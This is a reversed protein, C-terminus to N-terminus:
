DSWCGGRRGPTTSSPWCCSGAASTTACLVADKARAKATSGSASPSSPAPKGAAPAPHATTLPFRILRVDQKGAPVTLSIPEPEPGEQGAAPGYVSLHVPGRPLGLLRFQGTGDTSAHPSERLHADSPYGRVQLGRLAQGRPDLVVGAISQDARSVVLDPLRHDGGAPAEFADPSASTYGAPDAQVEYREGPVLGAFTFRGRADTPVTAGAGESRRGRGHGTLRDVQVLVGRLPKGDPGAVRGTLTGAPRLRVEVAPSGKDSDAAV